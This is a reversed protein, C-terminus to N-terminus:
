PAQRAPRGGGMPGVMTRMLDLQHSTLIANVSDHYQASIAHVQTQFDQYTLAPPATDLIAQIRDNHWRSLQRVKTQQAPTLDLNSTLRRVQREVSSDPNHNAQMRQRWDAAGQMQNGAQVQAQAQAPAANEQQKACGAAAVAAIAVFVRCSVSRM